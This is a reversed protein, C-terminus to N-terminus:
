LTQGAALDFSIVQPNSQVKHKVSLLTQKLTWRYPTSMIVIIRFAIIIIHAIIMIMYELRPSYFFYQNVLNILRYNLSDICDIM